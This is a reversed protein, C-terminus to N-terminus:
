TKSEIRRVIYLYAISDRPFDLCSPWNAGGLIVSLGGDM